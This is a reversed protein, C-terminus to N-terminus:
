NLTNFANSADILLVAEIDDKQFMTRVAHVGAEICALQGACLQISGAAVIYGYIM